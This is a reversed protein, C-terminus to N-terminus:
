TYMWILSGYSTNNRMGNVSVGSISMGISTTESVTSQMNFSGGHACLPRYPPPAAMLKLFYSASHIYNHDFIREQRQDGIEGIIQVLHMVRHLQIYRASTFVSAIGWWNETM